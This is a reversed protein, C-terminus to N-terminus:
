EGVILDLAKQFKLDERIENIRGSQRLSGKITEFDVGYQMAMAQIRGDVDAQTVKITETKVIYELIRFKKIERVAQPGMAQMQEPTPDEHEHDEDHQENRHLQHAVWNKVRSEAVEFSNKAILVDIAEEQAKAKAQGRRQGVMNETMREKLVEISELGLQKAFEDDLEPLEVDSVENVVVTFQATKGAYVADKHDAPYVFLITKESGKSLGALGEDFGPTTSDGITAKFAPNEPLPMEEGGIMVKVYKGEVLDGKQAPRSVPNHKAYMTRMQTMEDMMEVEGVIIQPVTIGTEKYGKIEIPPDVEIVLKFTIPAIKDDKFDEMKGRGVPVINAKALEDRVVSNITDDIAENRISSGFRSIIMARPVMGPRFGKIQVEKTYEKVKKEYAPKLGDQPISVELTRITASTEKIAVNM